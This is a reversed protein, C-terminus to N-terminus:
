RLKVPDIDGVEIHFSRSLTVQNQRMWRLSCTLKDSDMEDVETLM